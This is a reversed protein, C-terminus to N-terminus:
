GANAIQGWVNEKLESSGLIWKFTDFTDWYLNM